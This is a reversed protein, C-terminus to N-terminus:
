SLGPVGTVTEEEAFEVMAKKFPAGQTNIHYGQAYMRGRKDYKNTLHFQDFQAIRLYMEYSSRKFQAWQQRQEHTMEEEPVKPYEEVLSLFETDLKLKVKNQTNIVDLAQPQDHQNWPKLILPDNFTLYGSEYNHRVSKPECVMPPLYQSQAIFGLLEKSLPIHSQVVLSEYQGPKIIDFAYANTLVALLEAATRIAPAKSNFGLRGAFQASVSTFLEPIMCSSVQVFADLVLKELDLERLENIRKNKSPFYDQSMWEELLSVGHQVKSMMEPNDRIEKLIYRDIHKRCFQYELQLQADQSM